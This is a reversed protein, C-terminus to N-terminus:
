EVNSRQTTKTLDQSQNLTKQALNDVKSEMHNIQKMENENSAKKKLQDIHEYLNDFKNVISHAVINM